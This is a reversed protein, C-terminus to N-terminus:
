HLCVKQKFDRAYVIYKLYTNKTQQHDMFLISVLLLITLRLSLYNYEDVVSIAINFNGSFM